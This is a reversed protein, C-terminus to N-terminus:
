NFYYELVEEIKDYNKHYYNIIKECDQYKIETEFENKLIQKLRNASPIDKFYTFENKLFQLADTVIEFYDDAGVIFQLGNSFTYLHICSWDKSPPSTLYLHYPVKSRPIIDLDYSITNTSLSM